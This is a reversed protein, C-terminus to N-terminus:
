EMTYPVYEIQHPAKTPAYVVGKAFAQGIFQVGAHEFGFETSLREGLDHQRAYQHFLTSPDLPIIHPKAANLAAKRLAALREAESPEEAGGGPVPQPKVLSFTLRFATRAWQQPADELGLGMGSVTESPHDQHNMRVRYTGLSGYMAYNGWYGDISGKTPVQDSADKRAVIFTSDEIPNGEEGLAKVFIYGAGGRLDDEDCWQAKVLKWYPASASPAPELKVGLYKLRCDWNRGLEQHYPPKTWQQPVPGDARVRASMDKLMQVLPLEGHLGFQQDFQHTFWPGQNEAPAAWVGIRYAAILWPMAAFVYEPVNQGLIDRDGQLYRFMELNLLSAAQPTPKPYRPDDGFTSGARQGVNYGGETMMIPISHGAAQVIVENLYEFGRFCTSDTMISADPRATDRRAKNVADAGMEWAWLGGAEKWEQETIPVGQLNVPDNPYELPRALCYNHIAAWAGGDLIDRRGRQVIGAFPDRQSGVGFAPMAPYGGEELVIDADIIFNDVVIDLWDPPKPRRWELDLDPENNTEFYMAGAQVYHRVAERGRQGINGPNQQPRYLRVVPMIDMDILQRALRLGSGGGDDMIKVWKIRMALLQERWFEWNRKGWEYVSLSWHVGRSNDQPPRPFEHLEM